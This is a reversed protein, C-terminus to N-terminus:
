LFMGESVDVYMQPASSSLLLQNKLENYRNAFIAYLDSSIDSRLLEAAVGDPMCNLADLTLEMKHSDETEDNIIQPFKYYFMEVKGVYDKFLIKTNGKYILYDIYCDNDGKVFQLQYFDGPLDFENIEETVEYEQKDNIKKIQSLELQIKNICGNLKKLIDEDDTIPNDGEGYQDSLEEILELTRKKIDLLTM